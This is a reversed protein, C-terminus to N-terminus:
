QWFFKNVHAIIAFFIGADFANITSMLMFGIRRWKLKENMAGIFTVTSLVLSFIAGFFLFYM